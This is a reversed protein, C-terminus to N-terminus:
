AESKKGSRGHFAIPGGSAASRPRARRCRPAARRIGVASKVVAEVVLVCSALALLRVTLGVVAVTVVLGSKLAAQWRVPLM